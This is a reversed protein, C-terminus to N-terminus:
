LWSFHLILAKEMCIEEITKDKFGLQIGFRNIVPLLLYNNHIVEAMRTNRDFLQM